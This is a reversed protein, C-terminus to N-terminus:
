TPASGPRGATPDTDHACRHGDDGVRVQVGATGAELRARPAIVSRSVASTSAVKHM